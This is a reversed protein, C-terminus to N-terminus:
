SIIIKGNKLRKYNDQNVLKNKKKESFYWNLSWQPHATVAILEELFIFTSAKCLHERYLSMNKDILEIIESTLFSLLKEDIFTINFNDKSHYCKLKELGSIYPIEKLLPCNSCYLVKLGSINPIEKLLPCSYCDITIKNAYNGSCIICM